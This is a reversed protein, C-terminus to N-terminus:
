GVFFRAFSSANFAFYDGMARRIFLGFIPRSEPLAWELDGTYVTGGLLLGGEWNSKKILQSKNSTDIEMKKAQPLQASAISSLLIFFLLLSKTDTTM